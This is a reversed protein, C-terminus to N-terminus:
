ISLVVVPIFWCMRKKWRRKEVSTEEGDVDGDRRGEKVNRRRISMRLREWFGLQRTSLGEIEETSEEGDELSRSSVTSLDKKQNDTTDFDHLLSQSESHASAM